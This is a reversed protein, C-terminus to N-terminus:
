RTPGSPRGYVRVGAVDAVAPFRARLAADLGPVGRFARGAVVAGAGAAERLIAERGLSGSGVRVLSADIAGPPTPRGALAPVRPLDSVVEEGPATAGRVRDAVAALADRERAGMVERGAMVGPVLLLAGAAATLAATRPLLASAALVAAPASLVVLHHLFLPRHVLALLAGGALLTIEPAQDRAWAASGRAGRAALGAGLVLALGAFGAVLALPPNGPPLDIGRAAGRIGAVGEAIAGAEGAHVVAVAAGVLAAGLAAALVAPRRARATLALVALAPLVALASLKTLVAAAALAGAALGWAPRRVAARAAVLAWLTLAMAPLDASVVAARGAVAPAALVLACAALGRLAGHGPRVIAWAALGAALAWGLAAVRLGTEGGGARWVVELAAFFLPPQSAFVESGLTAGGALARASAAYVGEDFEASPVRIDRGLLLGALALLAAVAAAEAAIM